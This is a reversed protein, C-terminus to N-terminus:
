SEKSAIEGRKYFDKAYEKAKDIDKQQKDKGGGLLLLVEQLKLFYIRIGEGKLKREFVGDGVPSCNSFNGISLFILKRGIKQKLQNNNIGSLWEDFPVKGSKTIYVRM